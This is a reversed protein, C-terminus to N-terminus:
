GSGYHRQPSGLSASYYYLHAKSDSKSRVFPTMQLVEARPMLSGSRAAKVCITSLQLSCLFHSTLLSLHLFVMSMRNRCAAVDCFPCHPTDHTIAAFPCDMRLMQYTDCVRSLLCTQWPWTTMIPAGSALTSRREAWALCSRGGHLVFGQVPTSIATPLDGAVLRATAALLWCGSATRRTFAVRATGVHVHCASICCCSM